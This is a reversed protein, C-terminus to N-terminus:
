LNYKQMKNYMTQRALGLEKSAKLVSGNNSSLAVQLAQKEIEAFTLPKEKLFQQQASLSVIFDEPRLIDSECLIVAKETTHRLERVNGPWNYKMLKDLTKSSFKLNFKEYKNAYEKLFHEALLIIDEDRDRLPPIEVVITNIRYYLDERFLNKSVLEELNKNTACVLRIDFNIPTKSGVKYIVRNQIATLLKSQMSLSLNGIEDLFLTGGSATEFWGTKDERADTFAGKIHGFMESEFLSETITGIDINILVEDARRSNNHIEKVILEKGTGNEGVVLVNADTRAVKSIVKLVMEMPQSKGILPTDQKTVGKNIQRQRERLKKNEMKSQRLKFATQMTAILKNNDWPKVVFDTAGEKIARVALNVDSYATIMVVTALPDSKLIRNLWYIGENGTNLGASFNMDLLIVDFEEKNIYSIIQNPNSIGTICDFEPELLQILAKLVQKHDDIILLKGKM